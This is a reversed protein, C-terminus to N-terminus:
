GVWTHILIRQETHARRCLALFQNVTEIAEDTVTMGTINREAAMKAYWDEVLPRLQHIPVAASDDLWESSVTLAM